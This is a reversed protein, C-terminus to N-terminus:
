NREPSWAAYDGPAKPRKGGAAISGSPRYANPGGTQNPLHPKEWDRPRYDAAPLDDTTHTMWSHWAPPVKSGDAEGKFIVWRREGQGAYLEKARYYSNGFADTGVQEAKAKWLTFRTGLTNGTWWAFLETFIGM